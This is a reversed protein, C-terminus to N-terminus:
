ISTLEEEKDVEIQELKDTYEHVLKDLEKLDRRIDDESVGDEGEMKEIENKTDTRANRLMVKASEIKQSLKKVMDQRREQTLSPVVIRIQDNDVVPNLNLNAKHVAEEINELLNADWPKIIILNPDPTNVNAVENIAMQGGYAEVKVPDLMDVSARGTRLTAIDKKTHEIIQELKQKFSTFNHM